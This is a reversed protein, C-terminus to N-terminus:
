KFPFSNIISNKISQMENEGVPIFSKRVEDVVEDLSKSLIDLDFANYRPQSYISYYDNFKYEGGKLKDSLKLHISPVHLSDSVILGHLSSSLVADCKAIEEIVRKCPWTADILHTEPNNQLFDQLVPNDVDVYHPLIGLRYQKAPQKILFSALLGADGITINSTDGTIRKLSEKGRVGVIKFDTDSITLDGQQIFGSSWVYPRNSGKNQFTEEIISGAGIMDCQDAPSWVVNRGYVKTIIERTIEDGFNGHESGELRWWNVKIAPRFFNLFRM